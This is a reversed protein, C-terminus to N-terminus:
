PDAVTRHEIRAAKKHADISPTHNIRTAEAPGRPVAQRQARGPYVFLTHSFHDDILGDRAPLEISTIQMNLISHMKIATSKPASNTSCNAIIRAAIIVAISSQPQIFHHTKNVSYIFCSTHISPSYQCIIIM